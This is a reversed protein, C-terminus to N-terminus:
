RETEEEGKGSGRDGAREGDLAEGGRQLDPGVGAEGDLFDEGDVELTVVVADEPPDGRPVKADVVHVDEVFGM